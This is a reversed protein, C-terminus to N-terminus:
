AAQKRTAAPPNTGHKASNSAPHVSSAAQLIRRAASSIEWLAVRFHRTRSVKAHSNPPFKQTRAQHNHSKKPGGRYGALAANRRKGATKIKERSRAGPRGAAFPHGGCVGHPEARSKANNSAQMRRNVKGRASVKAFIKKGFIGPAALKERGTGPPNTHQPWYRLGFPSRGTSSLNRVHRPARKYHKSWKAHNDFPKLVVFRPATKLNIMRIAGLFKESIRPRRYPPSYRTAIELFGTANVVPPCIL